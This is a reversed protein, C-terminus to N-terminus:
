QGLRDWYPGLGDWSSGLITENKNQRTRRLETQHQEDDEDEGKDQESDKNNEDPTIRKTDTKTQPLTRPKFVTSYTSNEGEPRQLNEGESRDPGTMQTSDEAEDQTKKARRQEDDDDEGIHQEQDEHLKKPKM